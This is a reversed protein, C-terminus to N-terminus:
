QVEKKLETKIAAVLDLDMSARDLVKSLIISRNDIRAKLQNIKEEKVRIEAQLRDCKADFHYFLGTYGFFLGTIFSLVTIMPARRAWVSKNSPEIPSINEATEKQKKLKM